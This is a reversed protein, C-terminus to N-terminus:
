SDEEDDELQATLRAVNQESFRLLALKLARTHANHAAAIRASLQADTLTEPDANPDAFAALHDNAPKPPQPKSM